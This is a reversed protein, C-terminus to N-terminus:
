ALSTEAEAFGRHNWTHGIRGRSRISELENFLLLPLLLLSCLAEADYSFFHIFLANFLALLAKANLCLLRNLSLFLLSHLAESHHFIVRLSAQCAFFKLGLPLCSHLSKSSILNLFSLIAHWLIPAEVFEM